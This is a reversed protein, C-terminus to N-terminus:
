NESVAAAKPRRPAIPTAPWGSGNKLRSKSKRRAAKWGEGRAAAAFVCWAAAFLAIARLRNM